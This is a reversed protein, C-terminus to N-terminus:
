ESKLKLVLELLTDVLSEKLEYRSYFIILDKTEFELNFKLLVSRLGQWGYINYRILLSVLVERMENLNRMWDCLLDPRNAFYHVVCKRLVVM